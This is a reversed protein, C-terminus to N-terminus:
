KETMNMYKEGSNKTAINIIIGYDGSNNRKNPQSAILNTSFNAGVLLGQARHKYVEIANVDINLYNNINNNSNYLIKTHQFDSINDNPAASTITFVKQDTALSVVNNGLVSYQSLTSDSIDQEISSSIESTRGIIWKKNSFNGQPITVYVETNPFYVSESQAYAITEGGAYSIKYKKTASDLCAIINCKITKDLHLDEIRKGVIVDIAEYISDKINTNAM